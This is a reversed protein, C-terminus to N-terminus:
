MALKVHKNSLHVKNLFLKKSESIPLKTVLTKNNSKDFVVLSRSHQETSSGFAIIKNPSIVNNIGFEM